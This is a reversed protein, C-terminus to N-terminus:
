KAPKFIKLLERLEESKDPFGSKEYSHILNHLLREIIAENTCPQYFSKHPEIKQQSLYQDIERKGLVAGGQYPNIYFLVEKVTKRKLLSIKQDMYALIFIKPLNIGRVPLDLQKAVLMYIIALSVPSGKKGELVLNIYSNRPSFINKNNKSFKHVDFIFHNIIRVKELATLKNNIELWIDGSIKQIERKIDKIDLDPYQYRALWCAGELLDTAGSEKWNALNKKVNRFQIDRIINEIKQQYYQDVTREWASELDPIVDTGLERLNGTVVDSVETDPDDLLHILARIDKKEM